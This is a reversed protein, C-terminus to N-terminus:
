IPSPRSRIARALRSLPRDDLGLDALHEVTSLIYDTNPGAEGSSTMVIDAIEQDSLGGAYQDHGPVALYVLAGVRRGSAALRVPRVVERYVNAIQERARLYDVVEDRRTASVEFAMGVCSGGAALGFVLGPKQPTGRYHTSYICLARHAGHLVAREAAIHEFGPNWMLSGYGFVWFSGDM